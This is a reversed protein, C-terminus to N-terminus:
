GATRIGPAVERYILVCPAKTGLHDLGGIALPPSVWATEVKM